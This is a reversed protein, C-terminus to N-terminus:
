AGSQSPGKSPPAPVSVPAVPEILFGFARRASNSLPRMGAGVREGVAQIVDGAPAPELGHTTVVDFRPAAILARRGLRAAPESAALALELTASTAEALALTLPRGAVPDVAVRSPDPSPTPVPRGAWRWAPVIAVGLVCAAALAAWAPRALFSRVLPRARSPRASEGEWALVVRDALGDSVAPPMWSARSIAQYGAGLARCAPCEDAHAEIAALDAPTEWAASSRADLRSNWLDAFQECGIM